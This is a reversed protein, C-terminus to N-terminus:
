DEALSVGPVEGAVVRKGYDFGYLVAADEGDFEAEPELRQGEVEPGLEPEIRVSARWAGAWGTRRASCHILYGEYSIYDAM